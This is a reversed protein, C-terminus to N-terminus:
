EGWDEEIKPAEMLEVTNLEINKAKVELNNQCEMCTIIESIEVDKDISLTADCVLCQATM